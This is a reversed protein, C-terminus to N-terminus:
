FIDHIKVYNHFLPMGDVINNKLTAFKNAAIIDISQILILSAYRSVFIFKSGLIIKTIYINSHM